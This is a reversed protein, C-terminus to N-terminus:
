GATRPSPASGYLDQRVVDLAQQSPRGFRAALLALGQQLKLQWQAEPDGDGLQQQQEVLPVQNAPQAPESM